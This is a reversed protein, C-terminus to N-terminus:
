AFYELIIVGPPFQSSIIVAAFDLRLEQRM